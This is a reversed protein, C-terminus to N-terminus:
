ERKVRQGGLGRATWRKKTVRGTMIEGEGKAGITAPLRDLAGEVAEPNPPRTGGAGTSAAARRLAAASGTGRCPRAAVDGLGREIATWTPRNWTTLGLARGAAAIREPHCKHDM